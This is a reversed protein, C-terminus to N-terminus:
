LSILLEVLKGTSSGFLSLLDMLISSRLPFNCGLSKCILSPGLNPSM